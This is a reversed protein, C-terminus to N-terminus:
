TEPNEERKKNGRSCYPGHYGEIEGCIYCPEENEVEKPEIPTYNDVTKWRHKCGLCPIYGKYDYPGRTIMQYLHYHQCTKCKM